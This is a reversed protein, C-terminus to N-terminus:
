ADVCAILRGNLFSLLTLSILEEFVIVPAGEVKKDTKVEHMFKGINKQKMQLDTKNM